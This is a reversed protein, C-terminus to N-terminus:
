TVRPSEKPLQPQAGAEPAKQDEPDPRAEPATGTKPQEGAAAPKEAPKSVEGAPQPTVATDLKVEIPFIQELTKGTDCKGKRPTDFKRSAEVKQPTFSMMRFQTM